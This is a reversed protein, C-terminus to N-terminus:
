NASFPAQNASHIAGSQRFPAQNASHRRIVIAQWFAVLVLVHFVRFSVEFCFDTVIPVITTAIREFDGTNENIIKACLHFHLGESHTAFGLGYTTPDPWKIPM